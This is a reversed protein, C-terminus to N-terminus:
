RSAYMWESVSLHVDAARLSWTSLKGSSWRLACKGQLTLLQMCYMRGQPAFHKVKTWEGCGTQVSALAATAAPGVLSRSSNFGCPLLRWSAVHPVAAPLGDLTVLWCGQQDQLFLVYLQMCRRHQLLRWLV